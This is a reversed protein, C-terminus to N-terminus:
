AMHHTNFVRKASGIYGGKSMPVYMNEREDGDWSAKQKENCWSKFELLISKLKKIAEDGIEDADSYAVDVVSKLAGRADVNQSPTFDTDDISQCFTNEFSDPDSAIDKACTHTNVHMNDFYDDNIHIKSGDYNKLREFASCVRSMEQIHIGDPIPKQLTPGKVENKAMHHFIANMLRATISKYAFRMYAANYCLAIDNKTFGHFPIVLYEYVHDAVKKQHECYIGGSGFACCGCCYLVGDEEVHVIHTRKFM